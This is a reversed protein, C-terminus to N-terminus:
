LLISEWWNQQNGGGVAIRLYEMSPEAHINKKYCFCRENLSVYVFWKRIM